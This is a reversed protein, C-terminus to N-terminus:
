LGEVMDPRLVKVVERKIAVFDATLVLDWHRPRPFPVAIEAAVRGPRPTMVVVRDALLVAEEVDHTIFLVTTKLRQWLGLLFSQMENRTHADLAGFPEDMLLIQPETILARAIAVRQQMGGSLQYPAHNAFGGLGMIELYTQLKAEVAEPREGKLKLGFTINDRVNLWPYLSAQQFVVARDSGPGAVPTGDVRVTGGDPQEFGAVLQLLTTKGCGSPGAIAIFEGDRIAISVDRLAETVARGTRFIKSVQEVAIM